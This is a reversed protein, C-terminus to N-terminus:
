LARPAKFRFKNKLALRKKDNRKSQIFMKKKNTITDKDQDPVLSDNGALIECLDAVDSSYEGQSKIHVLNRVINKYIQIATEADKETLQKLVPRNKQFFAVPDESNDANITLRQSAIKILKKIENEINDVPTVWTRLNNVVMLNIEEAASTYTDLLQQKEEHWKLGDIGFADQNDIFSLNNMLRIFTKMRQDKEFTYTAASQKLRTLLYKAFGIKRVEEVRKGLEPIERNATFLLRDMLNYDPQILLSEHILRRVEFQIIRSPENEYIFESILSAELIQSSTKSHRLMKPYMEERTKAVKLSANRITVDEVYNLKAYFALQAIISQLKLIEQKKGIQSIAEKLKIVNPSYFLESRTPDFTVRKYLHNHRKSIQNRQYQTIEQSQDTIIWSEKNIQSLYVGFQAIEGYIKIIEHLNNPSIEADDYKGNLDMNFLEDSDILSDRKQFIASTSNESERNENIILLSQGTANVADTKLNIPEKLGDLSNNLRIYFSEYIEGCYDRFTADNLIELDRIQNLSLVLNQKNEENITELADEVYNRYENIADYKTNANLFISSYLLKHNNDVLAMENMESFLTPSDPFIKSLFCAASYIGDAFNLGYSAGLLLLLQFGMQIQHSKSHYKTRNIDFFALHWM